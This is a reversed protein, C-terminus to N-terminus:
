YVNDDHGGSLPPWFSLSLSPPLSPSLSLSDKNFLTLSPFWAGTLSAVWERYQAVGPTVRFPKPPDPFAM